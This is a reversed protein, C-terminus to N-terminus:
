TWLASHFYGVPLPTGFASIDHWALAILPLLGGVVMRAVAELRGRLMVLAYLGVVGAILGTPYETVVAGALLFGAVSLWWRRLRGHRVAFLVAFASFLFFASTQHGVFSNAYPFACTALAYLLTAVWRERRTFGLKGALWFMLLALVTAPVAVTFFTT